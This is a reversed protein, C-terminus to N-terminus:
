ASYPFAVILIPLASRACAQPPLRHVIVRTAAAVMAPLRLAAGRFMVALFARAFMAVGLGGRRQRRRPTHQATANAPFRKRGFALEIEQPFALGNVDILPAAGFVNGNHQQVAKHLRSQAPFVNNFRKQRAM